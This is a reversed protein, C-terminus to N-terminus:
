YRETKTETSIAKELGFTKSLEHLNMSKVKLSKLRSYARLFSIYARVISFKFSLIHISYKRAM